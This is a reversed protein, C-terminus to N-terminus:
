DDIAEVGLQGILREINDKMAKIAEPSHGKWDMVEGV